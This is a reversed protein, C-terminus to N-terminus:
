TQTTPSFLCRCLRSPYRNFPAFPKPGNLEEPDKAASLIVIPVPLRSSLCRCPCAVVLVSLLLCCPRAIALVPLPSPYSPPVPLLLSLLLSLQLLLDTVPHCVFFCVVAFALISFCKQVPKSILM